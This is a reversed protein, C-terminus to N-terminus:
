VKYADTPSYSCVCVSDSNVVGKPKHNSRPTKVFIFYCMDVFVCM